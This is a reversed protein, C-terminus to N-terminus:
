AVRPRHRQVATHLVSAAPMAEATRALFGVPRADELAVREARAPTDAEAIVPTDEREATETRVSRASASEAAFVAVSGNLLVTAMPAAAVLLWLVLMLQATSLIPM